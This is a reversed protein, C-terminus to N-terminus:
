KKMYIERGHSAVSRQLDLLIPGNDRSYLLLAAEYLKWRINCIYGFQFVIPLVNSGFNCTPLWLNHTKLKGDHQSEFIQYDPFEFADADRTKNCPEAITGHSIKFVNDVKVLLV